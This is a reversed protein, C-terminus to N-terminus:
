YRGFFFVISPFTFPSINWVEDEFIFKSEPEIDFVSWWQERKVNYLYYIVLLYNSLICRRPHRFFSFHLLVKCLLNSFFFTLYLGLSWEFGWGFVTSTVTSQYEEWRVSEQLTIPRVRRPFCFLVFRCGLFKPGDQLRTCTVSYFTGLPM